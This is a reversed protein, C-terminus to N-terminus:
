APAGSPGTPDTYVEVQSLSLNVIWYKVIGARAYSRMKRRRDDLLSSDVVEVVVAIDSPSPHRCAYTRADGKVIAVGPEPESDELTIASQIRTDWGSPLRRKCENNTLHVSSEHPPNRSMKSVIWGELLEFRQDNAFLGIDILKHYEEVTWRKM